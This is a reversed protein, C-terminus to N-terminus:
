GDDDVVLGARFAAVARDATHTMPEDGAAARDALWEALDSRLTISRRQGLHESALLTIGILALAFCAVSDWNGEIAADVGGAVLLVAIVVLLTRRPVRTM